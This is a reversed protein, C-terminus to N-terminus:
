ELLQLKQNGVWPGEEKHRKLEVVEDVFAIHNSHGIPQGKTAVVNSREFENVRAHEEVDNGKCGRKQNHSVL